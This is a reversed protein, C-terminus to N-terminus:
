RWDTLLSIGVPYRGLSRSGDNRCGDRGFDCQLVSRAASANRRANGLGIFMEGRGGISFDKGAGWIIVAELDIDNHISAIHAASSMMASARKGSEDRVVGRVTRCTGRRIGDHYLDRHKVSTV